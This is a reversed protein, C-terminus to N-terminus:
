IEKRLKRNVDKLKRLNEQM